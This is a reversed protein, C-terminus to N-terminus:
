PDGSSGDSGGGPSGPDTAIALRSLGKGRALDMVRVVRGHDVSTDAKIVVLTSTDRQAAGSLIRDLDAWQVPQEDVYVAGETTMWINVDEKDRLITQSSSRPLDVQIGPATIFTTSVMFFLVLQFIIDILPTLDVRTEERRTRSFNM